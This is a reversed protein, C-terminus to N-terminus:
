THPLRKLCQAFGPASAEMHRMMLNLHQVLAWKCAYGEVKNVHELETNPIGSRMDAANQPAMARLFALYKSNTTPQGVGRLQAQQRSQTAPEEFSFPYLGGQDWM